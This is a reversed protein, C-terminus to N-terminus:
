GIAASGRKYLHKKLSEIVNVIDNKVVYGDAGADMAARKSADGDLSSHLLIPVGDLEDMHRLESVLTIGDLRPMEIDTIIAAIETVNANRGGVIEHVKNLAELGDNASIVRFGEHNLARTVNTLIMRSDDVLLVVPADRRIRLPTHPHSQEHHHYGIQHHHYVDYFGHQSAQAEINSLIKELDLIFLFENDEMLIMGTMCSTADSSPPLVKEWAVRRIRHTTSVIFGARKQSFETVIIQQDKHIPAVKDGLVQCLNVAPIPVGRLEFVGAVGRVSSALPNIRPMHVVERVKAVNIGYIGRIPGDVDLNRDLSFEILEFFNGGVEFKNLLSKDHKVM